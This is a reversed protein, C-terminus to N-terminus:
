DAISVPVFSLKFSATSNANFLDQGVETNWDGANRKDALKINGVIGARNLASSVQQQYSPYGFCATYCGLVIINTM